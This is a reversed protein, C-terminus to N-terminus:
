TKKRGKKLHERALYRGLPEELSDYFRKRLQEASINCDKMFKAATNLNLENGLYFNKGGFIFKNGIKKVDISYMEDQAIFGSFLALGRNEEYEEESWLSSDAWLYSHERSVRLVEKCAKILNGLNKDKM